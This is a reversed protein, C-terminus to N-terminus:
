SATSSGLNRICRAMVVISTPVAFLILVWKVVSAASAVGIDSSAGAADVVNALFHNEVLDFAGAVVVAGAAAWVIRRRLGSSWALRRAGLVCWFAVSAVYFPVFGRNDARLGDRLVDFGEEDCPGILEVARDETFAVELELVSGTACSPHRGALSGMGLTAITLIVGVAVLVRFGRKSGKGDTGAETAV